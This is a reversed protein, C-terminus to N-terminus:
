KKPTNSRPTFIKASLFYYIDNRSSHIFLFFIFPMLHIHFFVVFMDLLCDKLLKLIPLRSVM